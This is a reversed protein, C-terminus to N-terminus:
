LAAQGMRQRQPPKKNTTPPFSSLVGKADAFSIRGRTDDLDGVARLANIATTGGRWRWSDRWSHLSYLM